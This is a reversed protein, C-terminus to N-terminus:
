QILVNRVTLAFQLIDADTVAQRKAVPVATVVSSLLVAAATFELKM